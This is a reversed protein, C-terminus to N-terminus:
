FVNLGNPAPREPTLFITQFKKGASVGLVLVESVIGEAMEHPGFNIVAAVQRGILEAPEYNSYAGYSVRKGVSKGLDVTMRCAPKLDAPDIKSPITVHEASIITGIRIDLHEFHEHDAIPKAM